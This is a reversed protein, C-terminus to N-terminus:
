VQAYDKTLDPDQAMVAHLADAYSAKPHEQQYTRAREDLLKGALYRIEARTKDTKQQMRLLKLQTEDDRAAMHTVEDINLPFAFRVVRDYTYKTNM